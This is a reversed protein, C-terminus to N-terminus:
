GLAAVAKLVEDVHGPVKVNRWVGRLVGEKDILFTSREMGMYKKGMMSKEKWVDYQTALVAEPDSLLLFNLGYKEQFKVHSKLSDKSVGLVVTDVGVLSEMRDRFDCAEVTCGPTMDKPYFYLVVHQKGKYSSLSVQSGDQAELTFAPATDGLQLM